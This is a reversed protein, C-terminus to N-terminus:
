SVPLQGPAILKLTEFHPCYRNLSKKHPILLKKHGDLRWCTTDVLAISGM